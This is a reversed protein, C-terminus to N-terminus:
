PRARRETTESRKEQSKRTPPQQAIFEGCHLRKIIGCHIFGGCETLSESVLLVRIPIFEIQSPPISVYAISSLSISKAREVSAEPTRSSLSDSIEEAGRRIQHSLEQNTQREEEIETRSRRQESARRLVSM